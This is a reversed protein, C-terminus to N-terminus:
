TVRASTSATAVGACGTKGSAGTASGWTMAEPASVRTGSTPTRRWIAAM